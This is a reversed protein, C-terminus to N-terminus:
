SLVLKKNAARKRENETLHIKRMRIHKPTIEVYEDDDIYEMCEELSFITPPALKAKDDAGSSRMNTLKKAKILNVVLDSDRTHEGVL